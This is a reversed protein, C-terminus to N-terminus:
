ESFPCYFQYVLHRERKGEPPLVMYDNYLSRLYKNPDNCIPVKMGEFVGYRIPFYVSYERTESFYHKRGTPITIFGTNKSSSNFRDFWYVWKRHPVIGFLRGLLLRLRYRKLAEKDQSVFARYQKSPYQSYLVCTCIVHLLDSVAGKLKRMVVSRPAAAMPFIDIFIGKPFPTSENYIENDLTGKRYIKLYPSKSDRDARPVDIEYRDGLVGKICLDVLRDYDSRNMMIDLDDDWPIFGHHRIVGLCSGGALMFQINNADCVRNFDSLMMLLMQKLAWSEKETLKHLIASKAAVENMIQSDTKM